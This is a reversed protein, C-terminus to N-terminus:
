LTRARLNREILGATSGGTETKLDNELFRRFVTTLPLSERAAILDHELWNVSPESRMKTAVTFPYATSCITRSNRFFFGRIQM